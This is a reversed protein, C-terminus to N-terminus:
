QPYICKVIIEQKINMPNKMIIMIFYLLFIRPGMPPYSSLPKKLFEFVRLFNLKFFFQSIFIISIKNKKFVNNKIHKTILVKWSDLNKFSKIHFKEKNFTKKNFNSNSQLQFFEHLELDFKNNLHYLDLRKKDNEFFKLFNILILKKKM